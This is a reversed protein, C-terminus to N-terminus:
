ISRTSPALTLSEGCADASALVLLAVVKEDGTFTMLVVAGKLGDKEFAGVGVESQWGDKTGAKGKRPAAANLEDRAMAQWLVDFNQSSNGVSDVSRTLSIVCFNGAAEKSFSISNADKEVAFGAPATYTVIDFKAAQAFANAAALSVCILIPFLNLKKM